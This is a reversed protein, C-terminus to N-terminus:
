GTGPERDFMRELTDGSEVAEPDGSKYM